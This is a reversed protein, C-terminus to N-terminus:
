EPPVLHYGEQKFTNYVMKWHTSSINLLYDQSSEMNSNVSIDLEMNAILEYILTTAERPALDPIMTALQRVSVQHGCIETVEFVKRRIKTKNSYNSVSNRKPANVITATINKLKHM